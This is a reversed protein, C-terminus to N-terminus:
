LYIKIDEVTQIKKITCEILSINKKTICIKQRESTHQTRWSSRGLLSCNILISFSTALTKPLLEPDGPVCMPIELYVCLYVWTYVYTQWSFDHRRFMVNFQYIFLYYRYKMCQNAMFPPLVRNWVKVFYNYCRM